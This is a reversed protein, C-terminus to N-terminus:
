MLFNTAEDRSYFWLSRTTESYNSGYALINYMPMVLDLYDNDDTTRGYVKTIYKTFPVCSKFAVPTPVNHAAIVIDGRVLISTDNYDCFNPKLVETNHIIENEVDYNANSKISM